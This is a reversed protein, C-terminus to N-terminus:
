ERVHHPRLSAFIGCVTLPQCLRWAMAIQTGTVGMTDALVQARRRRERKAPSDFRGLEGPPRGADAFGGGALAAWAFLPLGTRRYFRADERSLSAVNPALPTVEEALSMHASSSSIPVLGHVASHRRAEAIRTTTW